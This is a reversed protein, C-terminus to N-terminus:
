GVLLKYSNKPFAVTLCVEILIDRAWSGKEVDNHADAETIMRELVKIKEPTDAMTLIPQKDKLYDMM